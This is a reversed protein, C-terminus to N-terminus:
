SQSFFDLRNGNSAVKKNAGELKTNWGPKLIGGGQECDGGGGELLRYLGKM